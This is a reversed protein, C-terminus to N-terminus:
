KIKRADNKSGCAERLVKYFRRMRSEIMDDREQWGGEYKHHPTTFHIWWDKAAAVIRKDLENM